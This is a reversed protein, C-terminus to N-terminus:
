RWVGDKFLNALKACVAYAGLVTKGTLIDMQIWKPVHITYYMESLGTRYSKNSSFFFSVVLWRGWNVPLKLSGGIPAVCSDCGLQLGCSGPPKSRFLM